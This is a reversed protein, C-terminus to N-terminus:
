NWRTDLKNDMLSDVLVVAPGRVYNLAPVNAWVDLVVTAVLAVCRQSGTNM